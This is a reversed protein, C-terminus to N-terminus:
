KLGSLVFICQFWDHLLPSVKLRSAYYITGLQTSKIVLNIARGGSSGGSEFSGVIIVVEREHM